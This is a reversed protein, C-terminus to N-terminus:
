CGSSCGDVEDKRRALDVWTELTPSGTYRVTGQRTDYDILGVDALRPLQRHHLDNEVAGPNPSGLSGDAAEEVAAVDAALESLERVDAADGTLCYLLYRRRRDALTAYIADLRKSPVTDHPFIWGTAESREERNDTSGDDSM